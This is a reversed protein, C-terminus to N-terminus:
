RQECLSAVITPLSYKKKIRPLIEVSMMKKMEYPVGPMSVFIKNDQEFWMGPATGNANHIVTSNKCVPTSIHFKFLIFYKYLLSLLLSVLM